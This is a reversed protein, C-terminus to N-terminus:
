TSSLLPMNLPLKYMKDWRSHVSYCRIYRHMCIVSLVIYLSYLPSHLMRYIDAICLVVDFCGIVRLRAKYEGFVGM